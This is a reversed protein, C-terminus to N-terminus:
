EANGRVIEYIEIGRQTELGRYRFRMSVPTAWVVSPTSPKTDNPALEAHPVFRVTLEAPLAQPLNAVGGWSWGRQWLDLTITRVGGNAEDPVDMEIHGRPTIGTQNTPMALQLMDRPGARRVVLVGYPAANFPNLAPDDVIAESGTAPMAHVRYRRVTSVPFSAFRKFVTEDTLSRALEAFGLLVVGFEVDVEVTGPETAPPLELPAKSLRQWARPTGDPAVLRAITEVRMESFMGRLPIPDGIRVVLPPKVEPWGCAELIARYAPLLDDDAPAHSAIAHGVAGSFGFLARKRDYTEATRLAPADQWEDAIIRAARRLVDDDFGAHSFPHQALGTGVGNMANDPRIFAGPELVQDALWRASSEPASAWPRLWSDVASLARPAQWAACAIAAVVVTASLAIGTRVLARQPICRVAGPRTVDRGCESCRELGVGRLISACGVCRVDVTDGRITLLRVLALGVGIAIGAAVGLAACALIPVAATRWPVPRGAPSARLRWWRSNPPTSQQVSAYAIPSSPSRPVAVRDFPVSVADLGWAFPDDHDRIQPDDLHLEYLAGAYAVEGRVRIESATQSGGEIGADRRPVTVEIEVNGGSSLPLWRRGKRKEPAVVEFAVPAGDVLVEDIRAFFLSDGALSLTLRLADKTDESTVALREARFALLRTRLDPDSVTADDLGFRANWRLDERTPPLQLLGALLRARTARDDTALRQRLLSQDVYTGDDSAIMEAYAWTPALSRWTLGSAHVEIAKWALVGTALLVMLGVAVSRPRWRRVLRAATDGELAVGCSCTRDGRALRGTVVTGCKPCIARRLDRSPIAGLIVCAMGIASGVTVALPTYDQVLTM